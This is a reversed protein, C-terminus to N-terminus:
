CKVHVKVEERRFSAELAEAAKSLSYTSTILEDVNILGRKLLRIAPEFPGCRTGVLSVEKVVLSTYNLSVNRGHTSKGVIVGRPRVVRLALDLGSPSGSAEVVYDFGVGERTHKRVYEMAHECDIVEDAGLRDALGAKPSGPRTIVIVELGALKLVQLTLLGVTGSGIVAAKFWPKPPALQISELVAALPEVMCAQGPTLAKVVHINEAPTVVYEALGGDLDIGIAKRRPCQTKLGNRCFWCEGCSVNIETTVKEGIISEDVGEGVADVIGAVEHGLIIPLKGPRYSGRYFAKDTGCIGAELVKIRIWGPPPNPIPVDEVRANGPSHLVLAKM